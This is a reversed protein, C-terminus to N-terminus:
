QRGTPRITGLLPHQPHSCYAPIHRHLLHRHRRGGYDGYGVSYGTTSVVTATVINNTRSITSITAAAPASQSTFKPSHLPIPLGTRVWNTGDFLWSKAEDDLQMVNDINVAVPFDNLTGVATVPVWGQSPGPNNLRYLQTRTACFYHM